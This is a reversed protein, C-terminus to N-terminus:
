ACGYTRHGHVLECLPLFSQKAMSQSDRGLELCRVVGPLVKCRENITQARTQIRHDTGICSRHNHLNTPHLHTQCQRDISQNWNLPHIDISYLVQHLRSVTINIFQSDEGSILITTYNVNCFIMASSWFDAASSRVRM